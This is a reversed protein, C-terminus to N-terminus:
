HEPSAISFKFLPPYFLYDLCACALLSVISAQWFACLIAECVVVLLFLFGVSAPNFHLVYGTFTFLAIVWCGALTEGIFQTRTTPGREGLINAINM